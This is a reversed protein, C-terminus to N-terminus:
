RKQNQVKREATTLEKKMKAKPKTIAWITATSATPPLPRPLAVNITDAAAEMPM